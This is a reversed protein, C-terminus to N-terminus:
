FKTQFAVATIHQRHSFREVQVYIRGVALCGVTESVHCHIKMATVAIVLTSKPSPKPKTKTKKFSFSIGHM